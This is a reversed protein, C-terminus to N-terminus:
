AEMETRIRRTERSLDSDMATATEDTLIGAQFARWIATGWEASRRDIEALRTAKVNEAVQVGCDRPHIESGVYYRNDVNGRRVNVLYPRGTKASHVWVVESGCTNCEYVPLTGGKQNVAGPSAFANPIRTTKANPKSTTTVHTTSWASRVPTLLNTSM